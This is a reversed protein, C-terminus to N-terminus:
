DGRIILGVKNVRARMFEGDRMGRAVNTEGYYFIVHPKKEKTEERIECLMIDMNLLENSACSM